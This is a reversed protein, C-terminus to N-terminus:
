LRCRRCPCSILLVRFFDWRGSLACRCPYHTDKTWVHQVTVNGDDHKKCTCEWGKKCKNLSFFILGTIHICSTWAIYNNFCSRVIFRKTRQVCCPDCNSDMQGQYLLALFILSFSWASMGYQCKQMALAQSGKSSWFFSDAVANSKYTISCSCGGLMLQSLKLELFM